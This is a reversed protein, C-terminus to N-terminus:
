KYPQISRFRIPEGSPFPDATNPHGTQSFDGKIMDRYAFPYLLNGNVHNEYEYKGIYLDINETNLKGPFTTFFSIPGDYGLKLTSLEQCGNLEDGISWLNPLDLEKIKNSAHYSGFAHLEMERVNPIVVTELDYNYGDIAYFISYGIVTAGKAILTNLHEPGNHRSHGTLTGKFDDSIEVKTLNTCGRFTDWFNLEAGEPLDVNLKIETLEQREIDSLEALEKLTMGGSCGSVIMTLATFFLSYKNM